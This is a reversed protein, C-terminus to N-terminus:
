IMKRLVHYMTLKCKNTKILNERNLELVKQHLVSMELQRTDSLVRTICGRPDLFM